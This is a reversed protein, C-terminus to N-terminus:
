GDHHRAKVAAMCQERAKALHKRAQAMLHDELYELYAEAQARDFKVNQKALLDLDDYSLGSVKCAKVPDGYERLEHLFRDPRVDIVTGMKEEPGADRQGVPLGCRMFGWTDDNEGGYDRQIRKDFRKVDHSFYPLRSMLTPRLV